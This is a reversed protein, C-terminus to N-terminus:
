NLLREISAQKNGAESLKNAELLQNIRTVNTKSGILELWGKSNQWSALKEYTEDEDAVTQLGFQTLISKEATAWEEPSLEQPSDELAAEDGLVPPPEPAPGALARPTLKTAPLRQGSATGPPDTTM